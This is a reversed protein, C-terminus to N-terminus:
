KALLLSSLNLLRNVSNAAIEDYTKMRFARHPLAALVSRKFAFSEASIVIPVFGSLPSYIESNTAANSMRPTLVQRMTKQLKVSKTCYITNGADSSWLDELFDGATTFYDGIWSFVTAEWLASPLDSLTLGFHEAASYVNSSELNLRVGATYQVQYRYFEEAANYRFVVNDAGQLANLGPDYIESWQTEGSGHYSRVVDMGAKYADLASLASHFDSITPKVGFSYTLWANSAASAVDRLKGRKINLLTKVVDSTADVVQRFLGFTQRMEYLPVISKFQSQDNALKNKLRKLAIDDAAITNSNSPITSLLRLRGTSCGTLAWSYDGHANRSSSFHIPVDVKHEYKEYATSANLKKAIQVRYDKNSISNKVYNGVTSMVLSGSSSPPLNHSKAYIYGVKTGGPAKVAVTTITM